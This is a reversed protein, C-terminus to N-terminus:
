VDGKLRWYNFYVSMMIIDSHFDHYFVNLPLDNSMTCSCLIYNLPVRPLFFTSKVKLAGIAVFTM